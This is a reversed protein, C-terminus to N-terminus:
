SAGGWFHCGRLNLISLGIYLAILVAFGLFMLHALRPGRLRDARRLHFAAAYFIAMLFSLVVKPSLWWWPGLLGRDLWAWVAGQALTLVFLPYGYGVLRFLTADLEELSPLRKALRTTRHRKLHASLCLYAAGTMGATFFLAYALFAMGVHAMLLIGHLVRPETDLRGHSAIANVLGILALPPAYFLILIPIQHQYVICLAALVSLLVFLNLSDTMTTFPLRGWEYGRVAFMLGQCAVGAWLLRISLRLRGMRAEALHLLAAGAAAVYLATGAYFLTQVVLTM